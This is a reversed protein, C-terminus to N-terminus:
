WLRPRTRHTELSPWGASGWDTGAAWHGHSSPPPRHGLGDSRVLAVLALALAILAAAGVLAWAVVIEM